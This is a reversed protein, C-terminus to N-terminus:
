NMAMRATAEVESMTADPLCDAACRSGSMHTTGGPACGNSGAFSSGPIPVVFFKGTVVFDSSARLNKRCPMECIWENQNMSDSREHRWASWYSGSMAIACQHM